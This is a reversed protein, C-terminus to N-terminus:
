IRLLKALRPALAAAVAAHGAANFHCIDIYQEPRLAAAGDVVDVDKSAGVERLIAQYDRDLRIVRYAGPPRPVRLVEAAESTRGTARYARVLYLQALDRLFPESTLAVRLHGIALEPDTELAAVGQRVHHSAIPNDGLMLLLVQVGTQRALTVMAAINDRYSAEDVRPRLTAVDSPDPMPLATARRLVATLARTMYLVGAARALTQVPGPRSFARQFEEPSDPEGRTARDNFNFSVVVVDPRITALHREMVLRGQYSSYGSVGLNIAHVGPLLRETVEVFSEETRVGVGFTNSDGVFVIRKGSRTALQGTDVTLHGAADFAREADGYLGRWGPQHEWGMIPTVRHAKSFVMGPVERAVDDRITAGVRLGSELLMLLGVTVGIVKAADRLPRGSCCAPTRIVLDRPQRPRDPRGHTRCHSLRQERPAAFSSSRARLAPVRPYEKDSSM